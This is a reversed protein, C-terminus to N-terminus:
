TSTMIAGDVGAALLEKAIEEGMRTADAVSTSNGTTSILYPYLKGIEGRKEKLKLLDVPAVRNPNANAYVPDYGAHVSEFKGSELRALKEIDYKKYFKTTAAPLHDPNGMPVIGGSTLLAITAKSLDKIPAAPTIADYVPIPIESQYEEGRLKALLMNVARTAGKEEKFVNVRRGMPILGEDEPLGVEEGRLLKDILSAMKLATKRMGAASNAARIIFLDKKYIEVAPNEEYLATIVPINLEKRVAQAIDACAMGYRGANFAPGAIFLDPSMERILSMVEARSKEMNGAYYNDGCVVTEEIEGEKILSNLLLGPGVAGEIKVPPMDTKEEGGQQGFFQNLYHAIKM